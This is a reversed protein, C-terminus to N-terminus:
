AGTSGFGGDGRETEDLDEVEIVTTPVVVELMGQAIRDGKSGRYTDTGDNHLKIKLEGRYDSDIVGVCNGLRVGHNFGMGSRSYIKLVFGKPVAFALGTRVVRGQGFADTRPALTFDEIGHIDFCASGDTAYAPRVVADRHLRKVFLPVNPPNFTLVDVTLRDPIASREAFADVVTDATKKLSLTNKSM